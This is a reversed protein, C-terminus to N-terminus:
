VIEELLEDVQEEELEIVIQNSELETGSISQIDYFEIVM